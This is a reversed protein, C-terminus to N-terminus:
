NLEFHNVINLEQIILDKNNKIDDEWFRILNFKKDNNIIMNKYTDFGKNKKQINSLEDENFFKPNSHWYDGDVEVLTDIDKLLFDFHFRDKYLYQYEYEIGLEDLIESFLLEPLTINQSLLQNKRNEALQKCMKDYHETSKKKGELAKSIKKAREKTYIKELREKAKEEGLIEKYTRGKQYIFREGNKFQKQRTESSKDYGDKNGFNGFEEVNRYRHGAVYDSFRKGELKGSKYKEGPRYYTYEGCGCKCKPKIGNLYYDIYTQQSHIKHTKSCHKRLSDYNNYSKNCHQCNYKLKNNIIRGLEKIKCRNINFYPTILQM